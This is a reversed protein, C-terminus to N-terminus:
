LVLIQISASIVSPDGSGQLCRIRFNDNPKLVFSSCGTLHTPTDYGNPESNLAKLKFTSLDLYSSLSGTTNTPFKITYSVICTISRSANSNVFGGGKNYTLGVFNPPSNLTDFIITTAITPNSPITQANVGYWIWNSPATNTLLGDDNSYVFGNYSLDNIKLNNSTLNSSLNINQTTQNNSTTLVQNLTPVTAVIANGFLGADYAQKVSM